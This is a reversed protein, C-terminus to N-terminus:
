APNTKFQELIKEPLESSFYNNYRLNTAGFQIGLLNEFFDCGHKM